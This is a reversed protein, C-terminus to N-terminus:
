AQRDLAIADLAALREQLPPHADFMRGLFPTGFPHVLLLQAVAPNVPALVRGALADIKRLAARLAVINGTLQVADRDAELEAARSVSVRVILATLPITCLALADRLPRLRKGGWGRFFTRRYAPEYFLDSGSATALAGLPAVLVAALTAAGRAPHTLHAIEHAVVAEIEDPSLMELLGTTVGVVGGGITVAAFANPTRLNSIAVLPVRIGATASLRGVLEVLAIQEGDGLTRARCARLIVARASFWAVALIALGVAAGVLAGSRAGLLWGITALPTTIIIVLALLHSM